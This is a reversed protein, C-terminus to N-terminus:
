FNLSRAELRSRSSSAEYGLTRLRQTSFAFLVTEISSIASTVPSEFCRIRDAIVLPFITLSLRLLSTNRTADTTSHNFLIGASFVVVLQGKDTVFDSCCVSGNGAVFPCRFFSVCGNSNTSISFSLHFCHQFNLWASM